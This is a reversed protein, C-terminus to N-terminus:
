EKLLINIDIKIWKGKRSINTIRAFLEKGADMLRAFVINDKQPVYGIKAGNETKIIIAMEDYSNDVERFFNLKDNEKLHNALEEIGAIHTTGAVWTDFLLIEREFPKPMDVNTNKMKSISTAGIIKLDSM